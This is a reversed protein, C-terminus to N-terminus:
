ESNHANLFRVEAAIDHWLPQGDHGTYRSATQTNLSILVTESQAGSSDSFAFTVAGAQQLARLNNVMAEPLTGWELTIDKYRWGVIDGRIKGSMTQYEQALIIEREPTFDNPRLFTYDGITITHWFTM